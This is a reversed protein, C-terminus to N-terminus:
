GIPTDLDAASKEAEVEAKVVKYGVFGNEERNWRQVKIKNDPNAENHQKEAKALQAVIYNGKLTPTVRIGRAKGDELAAPILGAYISPSAKKGRPKPAIIALEDDSLEFDLAPTATATAKTTAM